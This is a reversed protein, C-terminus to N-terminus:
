NRGAYLEHVGRKRRMAIYDKYSLGCLEAAAHLAAKKDGFTGAIPVKPGDLHYAYWSSSGKQKSVDYTISMNEVGTKM